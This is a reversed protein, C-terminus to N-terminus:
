EMHVPIGLDCFVNELRKKSAERLEGCQQCSGGLRRKEVM